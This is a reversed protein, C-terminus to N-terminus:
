PSHKILHMSFPHSLLFDLTFSILVHFCSAQPSIHLVKFSLHKGQRPV